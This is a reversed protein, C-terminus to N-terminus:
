VDRIRTAPPRAKDIETEVMELGSLSPYRKSFNAEWNEDKLAAGDVSSQVSKGALSSPKAPSPPPRDERMGPRLTQPKPRTNPRPFPGQALPASASISPRAKSIPIIVSPEPKQSVRHHPEPPLPRDQNPEYAALITSRTQQSGQPQPSTYRSYSDTTKTPSARGNESLLSQVKSQISTARSCDGKSARIRRPEGNAATRQRYAAAGEAVRREEQSLRRRELERRVEPSVEDLEDVVHGDDSRGDTAESGAIPTLETLGRDPSPNLVREHSGNTGTEFRRFAEGFRGALLSKTGSLSISPMSSRKIHRSSSTSRKRSLSDEGEMARLFEVNSSIKTIEAERQLDEKGASPMSRHSSSSDLANSAKADGGIAKQRLFAINSRVYSNSPRSRSSASKSRSLTNDMDIQPPRQLELSPRSSATSTPGTLLTTQSKSNYDLFKTRKLGPGEPQITVSTGRLTDSSRPQSTSRHESPPFRYIPRATVPRERIHTPPSVPSTMTGTSVMKPREQFPSPQRSINQSPEARELKSVKETATGRSAPKVQIPLAKNTSAPQAFADDALVETVRRNIDRSHGRVTNPKQDFAFNGGPEHLLSFEDLPPFRKTIEDTAPQDLSPQTSDLAAFPDSTARIVPSRSPRPTTHGFNNQVPRGRRMPAVEPINQKKEVM